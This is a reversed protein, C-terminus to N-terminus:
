GSSKPFPRRIPVYRLRRILELPLEEGSEDLYLHPYMDSIHMEMRIRLTERHEEPKDAFYEKDSELLHLGM